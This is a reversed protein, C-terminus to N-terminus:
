RESDFLQKGRKASESIAGADGLQFRDFPSRGSILTRQFAALARVVNAVSIPDAEAPFAEAFLPPYVPEAALRALLVSEMNRLGLEVLENGFIPVIAQMELEALASNAWTFRGLYGVNALGM